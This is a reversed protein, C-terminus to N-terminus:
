AGSVSDMHMSHLVEPGEETCEHSSSRWEKQADTPARSSDWRGGSGGQPVSGESWRSRGTVRSRARKPDNEDRRRPRRRRRPAQRPRFQFYIPSISDGIIYRARARSTKGSCSQLFFPTWIPPKPPEESCRFGRKVRFTGMIVGNQGRKPGRKDGGPGGNDLSTSCICM